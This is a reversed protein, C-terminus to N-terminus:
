ETWKKKKNVNEECDTAKRKSNIQQNIFNKERNINLSLDFLTNISTIGKQALESKPNAMFYRHVEDKVYELANDFKNVSITEDKTFVIPCLAITKYLEHDDDIVNYSWCGKNECSSIIKVGPKLYKPANVLVIYTNVFQKINEFQIKLNSDIWSINPSMETVSCKYFGKINKCAAFIVLSNSIPSKGAILYVEEKFTYELTFLEDDPVNNKSRINDKLFNFIELRYEEDEKYKETNMKFNAPKQTFLEKKLAKPIDSEKTYPTPKLITKKHKVLMAQGVCAYHKYYKEQLVQYETTHEVFENLNRVIVNSQLKEYDIKDPSTTPIIVKSTQLKLKNLIDLRAKWTDNMVNTGNNYFIDIITLSNKGTYIIDFVFIGPELLNLTNENDIVFLPNLKNLIIKEKNNNPKKNFDLVEVIKNENVIITYRTGRSYIMKNGDLPANRDLGKIAPVKLEKIINNYNM